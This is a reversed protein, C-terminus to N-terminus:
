RRPFRTSKTRSFLFFGFLTVLAGIMTGDRAEEILKPTAAIRLSVPGGGHALYSFAIGGLGTILGLFIVLIAGSKM